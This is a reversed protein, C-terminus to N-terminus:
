NDPIMARYFRSPHNAADLDMYELVGTLNTLTALPQWDMLNTSFESQFSLGTWTQFSLRGSSRTGIKIFAPDAMLLAPKSTAIGFVNSVVVSYPGADALQLNTLVLTANTTGLNNTGNFWWDYSIPADGTAVVNFTADGGPLGTQNTPDKRIFPRFRSNNLWVDVYANATAPNLIHLEMLDTKGDGNLDGPEALLTSANGIRVGSDTLRGAGNNTWITSPWGSANFPGRALLLDTSGDNNFDAARADRVQAGLNQNSNTFNGKGDNFYIRSYNGWDGQDGVFLDLSGDRNFDSLVAGRSCANPINHKRCIFGGHGDGLWILNTAHVMIPPPTHPIAVYVDTIGDGNIDGAAYGCQGWGGLNRLTNTFGGHGDNLLLRDESQGGVIIDIAGDNNLDGLFVGSIDIDCPIKRTEKYQYHGDNLYIVRNCLVDVYGDGNFDAFYGADPGFTQSTMTFRGQGNNLWVADKFYADLAGDGNIDALKLGWSSYSSDLRQGTNTFSIQANAMAAFAIAAIATSVLPVIPCALRGFRMGLTNGSAWATLKASQNMTNM